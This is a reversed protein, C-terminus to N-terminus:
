GAKRVCLLSEVGIVGIVGFIMWRWWGQQSELEVARLQRRTSEDTKPPKSDSMVVGLKELRELGSVSTNSESEMTNVALWTEAGNATQRRFVGPESLTATKVSKKKTANADIKEANEDAKKEVSVERGSRDLIKQDGPITLTAGVRYSVDDQIVPASIRFLGSILPVFKTSLALQSELPQWGSLLIWLKGAGRDKTILAPSGDDFKALIRWEDSSQAKIRRHKWFRLKSFDNFKSDALDAFLPHKFDVSELMAYQRVKAESVVSDNIGALKQMGLSYDVPKRTAEIDNSGTAADWVWLLNGGQNMYEALADMDSSVLEHSAVMLPTEAATPWPDSAAPQRQQYSVTRAVDSLPLQALFYGLSEDPARSSSEVCILRTPLPETRCFFYRNDFDSGDGDLGIAVAGKPPVAMRVTLSSGAPVRCATRSDEIPRLEGDLWHLQFSENTSGATNSIRARIQEADATAATATSGTPKNSRSLTNKNLVDEPSLLTVSANGRMKAEVREIRVKCSAPWTYEALREVEAGNQFDTVVVIESLTANSDSSSDWDTQLLDAATLLSLGLDTHMWTPAIAKLGALAQTQRQTAPTQLASDIAVLPRMTADFQYVSIADTPGSQRIIQEAKKVASDWLGDRRMSASTDILLMRQVGIKDTDKEAPANWYPRTFAFALLAIAMARLLLLLWQDVSSPRTLKPPTPELFMLSSMLTREKPRSRILHFLIPLAIALGALAYLPALFSM